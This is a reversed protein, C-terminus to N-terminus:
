MMDVMKDMNIFIEMMNVMNVMNVMNYESPVHVPRRGLIRIQAGRLSLPLSVAFFPTDHLVESSQSCFRHIELELM